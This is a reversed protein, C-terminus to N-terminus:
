QYKSPSVGFYKKFVTSFYKPNDFGALTAADTVSRGSRLLASARELRIVRIFDQPSKGTYSKLKVYFLTRSMAMERCLQDITFESDSLHEVILKTTKDVFDNGVNGGDVPKEETTVPNQLQLYDITLRMYKEHLEYVRWAGYFLLMIIAIYVLWMWWSNWWPQAIVITLTLTDIVAGSTRSICQLTLQHKGPELNVFRIYQQDSPQSWEGRGVQYRYAIDFHNRLNVSEFYLDFTRQQYGLRLEDEALMRHVEENFQEEQDATCGVGTINLKATYNIPQVNEPHIVIAGTTTGFLIDGSPLNQAAGRAYERNLGYCYNVNVVELTERPSVFSLGEETAIWIRGDNGLTLSSVHNSPLGNEKTLQRSEKKLLDWVYVGGGDTAIWLQQGCVLLHNVFPNVDSIGVPAYDLEEVAGSGPTVLKLGFATGVAIQGNPLQTITQVDHIPFYHCGSASEQLLDGDLSGIWLSGERDYYTVYVHDDKLLGDATPYRQRVNGRGDIEFIGKGYTSALVGGNPMKCASLIVTGQCCHQWTNTQTNLISIGNDTGMMLLDASLPMVMNVHDNLLSQLNKPTHKYVATTSGVPRAIDIGGSYTGIVINKWSDVAMCYVGNGHLVGHASENADFLLAGQGSGDRRMQYVGLGDIGILMTQDDYPCISRIPYQQTGDTLRVFADHGVHGSGDLSVIHLGNEYGGFWLKGSIEDYYGSEINYPLLQHGKEDFLGERTCFLLQDKMPMIQNVYADALVQTLTTDKLLFVGDHMALYLGQGSIHIDNLAVEHGIKESLAIVFDFRSQVPNFVFVSGWNDFAYISSSDTALHIVRGGSHGYPTGEDLPYNRVVSGNYRGVGIKSSWWIAGSPAQCVSFIRLNDMGEAKGLHSYSFDKVELGQALGTTLLALLTLLVTKIKITAM